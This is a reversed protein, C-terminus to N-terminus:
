IYIYWYLLPHQMGAKCFLLTDTIACVKNKKICLLVDRVKRNKELLTDPLIKYAVYLLNQELRSFRMLRLVHNQQFTVLAAAEVYFAVVAFM